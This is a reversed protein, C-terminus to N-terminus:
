AIGGEGREGRLVVGPTAGTLEGAEWVVEGHVLVLDMGEALTRPQEYTARDVFAGPDFLCLDAITGPKVVGRDSLGLRRAPRGTMAHLAQGLTLGAAQARHLYRPFTGFTRPHPRDGVVLGDSGVSAMPHTLCRDVDSSLTSDAIVSARCRTAVLLATVTEGVTESRRGAVQVLRADGGDIFGDGSAIALDSWELDMGVPPGADVLEVLEARASPDALLAMGLHPPLHRIPPPLFATLMTSAAEYPYVDFSLDVGGSESAGDLIALLREASGHHRLGPAQFHSFHVPVGARRGIEIAEDIATHLEEGYSRLHTVYLGGQERVAPLLRVIEDTSSAHAPPYSLGTSLGLAGDLMGQAVLREMEDIERDSAPREAVGMVSARVTGHPVLYGINQASRGELTAFFSGVSTWSWPERTEGDLAAILEAVLPRAEEPVPACSLGDQGIVESTVGQAIKMELIGTEALALDAHSHMDIFGPALVRGQADVVRSAPLAPGVTVVRGEDVLVSALRPDESSGDHVM